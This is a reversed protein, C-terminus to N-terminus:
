SDTSPVGSSAGASTYESEERRPLPSFGYKIFYYLWSKLHVVALRSFISRLLTRRASHRHHYHDFATTGVYAVKWGAAWFRRSWDIDEVYMFFREDLLGVRELAARRVFLAAGFLADVTRASQHDWDLLLYRRLTQKGFWLRGIATRRFLPVWFSPFQTCSYQLSGDRNLLRPGALGVDPHQDLFDVMQQVSTPHVTIDPNMIFVYEGSTARIGINNGYAYGGNRETEMVRLDPFAARLRDASGDQSDNDVLVIEYDCAPPNSRLTRINQIVMDTNRYNLQVVSLKM